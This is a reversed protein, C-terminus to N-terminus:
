TTVAGRLADPVDATKVITGDRGILRTRMDPRKAVSQPAIKAAAAADVKGLLLACCQEYATDYGSFELAANEVHAQFQEMAGDVEVDVFKKSLSAEPIVESRDGKRELNAYISAKLRLGTGIVPVLAELMLVSVRGWKENVYRKAPIGFSVPGYIPSGKHAEANLQAESKKAM